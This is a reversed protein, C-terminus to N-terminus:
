RRSHNSSPIAAYSYTWVAEWLDLGEDTGRPVKSEYEVRGQTMHSATVITSPIGQHPNSRCLSALLARTYGPWPPIYRASPQMASPYLNCHRLRDRQPVLGCEMTHLGETWTPSPPRPGFIKEQKEHSPERNPVGVSIFSHIFWQSQLHLKERWLSGSPSRPPPPSM